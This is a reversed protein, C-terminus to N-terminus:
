ASGISSEWCARPLALLPQITNPSGNGLFRPLLPAYSHGAREGARQQRAIVTMVNGIGLGSRKAIDDLGRAEVTSLAEMVMGDEVEIIEM